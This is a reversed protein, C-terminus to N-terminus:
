KTPIKSSTSSTVSQPKEPSTVSSTVAGDISQLLPYQLRHRLYTYKIADNPCGPLCDFCVVCRSADVTHATVDICSAKCAQECRRCQICKDPNIEIHFISNRSVFSLTTGVPCIANCFTRGNRAAMYWIITVTIISVIAGIATSASVIVQSSSWIGTRFGAASAADILYGWSPKIISACFREYITFPDLLFILLTTGCVLSVFTVGLTVYRLMNLPRSYHYARKTANRGLRPIRAAVDQVTGIPCLSSCYIRGFILTVLLWSIFITLSFTMAAPVLQVKCLIDAVPQFKMGYGALGGTILALVLIEVAIRFTRLLKGMATLLQPM